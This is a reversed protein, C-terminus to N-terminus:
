PPVSSGPCRLYLRACHSSCGLHYVTAAAFWTTFLPQQLGYPLCYGSYSVLQLRRPLCHGSYSVLQLRRPLCHGDRNARSAARCLRLLNKFLKPIRHDWVGPLLSVDVWVEKRNAMELGVRGNRDEFDTCTRM